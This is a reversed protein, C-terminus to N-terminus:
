QCPFALLLAVAVSNAALKHRDEPNTELYKVTTDILQEVTVGSPTCLRINLSNQNNDIFDFVGVVFGACFIDTNKDRCEQLLRNGNMLGAVAQGSVLLAALLLGLGLQRM